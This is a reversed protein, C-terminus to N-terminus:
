VDLLQVSRDTFFVLDIIIYALEIVKKSLALVFGICVFRLLLENQYSPFHSLTLLSASM